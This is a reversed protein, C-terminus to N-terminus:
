SDGEGSPFPVASQDHGHWRGRAVELATWLADDISEAVILVPLDAWAILGTEPLRVRIREVGDAAALFRGGISVGALVWGSGRARRRFEARAQYRRM